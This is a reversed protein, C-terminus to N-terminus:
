DTDRNAHLNKIAELTKQDKVGHFIHTGNNIECRIYEMHAEMITGASFGPPNYHFMPIGSLYVLASFFRDAFGREIIAPFERMKAIMLDFSHRDFYWPPNAYIPALFGPDKNEFLIGYFGKSKPFDPKLAFSDYEYMVCFDWTKSELYDMVAKLRALANAGSHGAAFLKLTEHRCELQDNEPCIVLLPCNHQLWFKEHREFVDLSRGHGIIVPQIKAKM